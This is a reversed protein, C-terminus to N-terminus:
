IANLARVKPQKDSLISVCEQYGAILYEIIGSDQHKKYFDDRTSEFEFWGGSKVQFLWSDSLKSGKANMWWAALDLEELIRIGADTEFTVEALEGSKNLRVIFTSPKDDFWNAEILKISDGNFPVKIADIEITM